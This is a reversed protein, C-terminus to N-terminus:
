VNFQQDIFDKIQELRWYVRGGPLQQPRPLRGKQVWRQLTRKGWGYKEQLEAYGVLKPLGDTTIATSM